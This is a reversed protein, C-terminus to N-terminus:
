GWSWALASPQLTVVMAAVDLLMELRKDSVSQQAALRLPSSGDAPRKLRQEFQALGFDALCLVMCVAMPRSDACGDALRWVFLELETLSRLFSLLPVADREHSSLLFSSVNLSPGHATM